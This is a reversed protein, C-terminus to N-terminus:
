FTSIFMTWLNEYFRETILQYLVNSYLKSCNKIEKFSIYNINSKKLRIQLVYRVILAKVRLNSLSTQLIAGLEDIWSPCCSKLLNDFM